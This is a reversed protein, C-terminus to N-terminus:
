EWRACPPPWNPHIPWSAWQIHSAWSWRVETAGDDGIHLGREALAQEVWQRDADTLRGSPCPAELMRAAEALLGDYRALVQRSRRAPEGEVNFPAAARDHVLRHLSRLEAAVREITTVPTSGAEGVGRPIGHGPTM